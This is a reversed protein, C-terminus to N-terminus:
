GAEVLFRELSALTGPGDEHFLLHGTGPVVELRAGPIAAAIQAAAAPPTNRDEAGVRVLTPARIEGLRPRLDPLAAIADFEAALTAPPAAAVAARIRAVYGPDAAARAPPIAVTAFLEDLPEGARAMRAFGAFPALTEPDGGALPGLLALRTVRVRGALALALAHYAGISFGVAAVSAVGLRLLEAELALRIGEVSLAPPLPTRGHGPLDAVLVRRARALREVLPDFLSAGIFQGHLLLVPPRPDSGLVRVFM